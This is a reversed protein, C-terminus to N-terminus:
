IFIIIHVSLLCALGLQCAHCLDHTRSSCIVSSTNSLKSMTDIGPHGLCRHWTSPSAVLTTPAAVSSSPTSRSPLRITYLSGSSDCRIIVNRTSLDKVFLSFPDFELSCWYDTTFRHVSLKKFIIDPTILVNNLYFSGLLTTDGVSTVLLSSINGVIISSPDNIHPPRVSALNGVDSTTHNSADSNAIWDTVVLPVM